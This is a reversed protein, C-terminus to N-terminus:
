TYGYRLCFAFRAFGANRRYKRPKKPQSWFITSINIYVQYRASKNTNKLAPVSLIKKFKRKGEPTYAAVKKEPSLRKYTVAISGDTPM